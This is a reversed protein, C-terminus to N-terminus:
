TIIKYLIKSISMEELDEAERIVIEWAGQNSVKKQHGELLIPM